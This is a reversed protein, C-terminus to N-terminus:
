LLKKLRNLIENAVDFKSMLPLKTTKGSRDLITVVNTDVGFGAGKDKLSNMVILDLNKKKLKERANRLEDNTELAFGILVTKRNKKQGLAHLIDPTEALPLSVQKRGPEKKIKDPASNEPAYDAVAAAMIVVDAGQSRQVVADHM